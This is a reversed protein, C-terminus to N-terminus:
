KKLELAHQINYPYAHIGNLFKNMKARSAQNDDDSSSFINAMNIKNGNKYVNIMIIESSTVPSYIVLGSYNNKDGSTLFDAPNFEPIDLKKVFKADPIFTTLYSSALGSNYDKIITLRQPAVVYNSNKRMIFNINKKIPVDISEINEHKSYKADGWLPTFDVQLYDCISSLNRTAPFYKDYYEKAQEISLADYNQNSMNTDLVEKQCSVLILLLTICLHQIISSKKM